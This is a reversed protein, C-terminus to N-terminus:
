AAAGIVSDTQQTGRASPLLKQYADMYSDSMRETTYRLARARAKQGEAAAMGPDRSLRQLAERWGAIDDAAVFTAAGGWLERFSPIDSLVLACGSLAAELVALGFPEYRAPAAYIGAQAMMQALAVPDLRGLFHAADMGLRRGDPSITEGAIELCIDSGEAARCLAEINKAQDWIRGAALVKNQKPAPSFGAPGRGNWIVRAERARGHLEQFQELYARTPAVLLDAARVADSVWTCYQQWQASLPEQKCARWWSPVCSHAALLVPAQFPLAAHYYGNAHVLDPRLDQAIRLLFDGSALVEARCEDMWEVRYATPVFTLNPLRAAEATQARDPLRGMSVLTVQVDHKALGACLDMAFTWVGGLTDATMLVHRPARRM